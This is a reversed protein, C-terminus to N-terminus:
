SEVVVHHYEGFTKIDPFLTDLPASLKVHALPALQRIQCGLNTFDLTPSKSGKLKILYIVCSRTSVLTCQGGKVCSILGESTSKISWRRVTTSLSIPFPSIM